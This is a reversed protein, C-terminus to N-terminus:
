ESGQEGPGDRAADRFGSCAHAHPNTGTKTSISQAEHRSNKVRVDDTVRFDTTAAWTDLSCPNGDPRDHHVHQVVSRRRLFQERVAGLSVKGCDVIRQGVIVVVLFLDVPLDGCIM